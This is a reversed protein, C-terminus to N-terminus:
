PWKWRKQCDRQMHDEMADVAPEKKAEKSKFNTILRLLHETQTLDNSNQFGFEIEVNPM